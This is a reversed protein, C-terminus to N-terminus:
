PQRCLDEEECGGKFERCGEEDGRVVRVFPTEEAATCGDTRITSFLMM